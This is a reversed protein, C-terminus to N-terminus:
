CIQHPNFPALSPRFYIIKGLERIGSLRLIFLDKWKVIFDTTESQIGKLHGGGGGGAM